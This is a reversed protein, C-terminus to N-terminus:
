YKPHIFVEQNTGVRLFANELQSDFHRLDFQKMNHLWQKRIAESQKRLNQLRQIKVEKQNESEGALPCYFEGLNPCSSAGGGM